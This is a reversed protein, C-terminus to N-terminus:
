DYDPEEVPTPDAAASPVKKWSDVFAKLMEVFKKILASFGAIADKINDFYVDSSQM